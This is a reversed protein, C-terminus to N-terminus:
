ASTNALTLTAGSGRTEFFFAASTSTTTLTSGSALTLGGSSAIELGTNFPGGAVTVTVGSFRANGGAVTIAGPINQFASGATNPNNVTLTGGGTSLLSYSGGLPNTNFVLGAITQNVAGLDPNTASTGFGAFIAFDTATPVASNTWSGPSNWATGTNNWNFNVPSQALGALPGLGLLVGVLFLDGLRNKWRACRAM